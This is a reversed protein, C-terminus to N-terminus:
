TARLPSNVSVGGYGMRYKSKVHVLSDEELKGSFGEGCSGTEADVCDENV